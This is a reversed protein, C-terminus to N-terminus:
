HHRIGTILVWDDQYYSAQLDYFDQYAKSISQEQEKLIGSLAIKGGPATLTALSATLDLLPKALINAIVFNTQRTAPRQNPAYLELKNEVGNRRANELSAELAQPDIDIGTASTAGLLLAAIALIGSGCGYDTITKGTLQQSDLWTLCLATTPHTGTGFALGPDLLLNVAQRDTSPRHWSPCIHLRSGFQMPHFHTMWEREWDRDEILETQISAALIGQQELHNQVFERAIDSSFLAIVKTKQWLPTTGPYPELVPSDEADQMSISLSGLDELLGEVFDAQEEDTAVTIQLWTM